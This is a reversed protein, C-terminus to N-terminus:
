PHHDPDVKKWAAESYAHLIKSRAEFYGPDFYGLNGQSSYHPYEGDQLDVMVRLADAFHDSIGFGNLQSVVGGWSGKFEPLTPQFTDGNAAHFILITYLGKRYPDPTNEIHSIWADLTYLRFDFEAMLKREMELRSETERARQNWWTWLGGFGTVFISTCLFLGFASNLFKSIKSDADSRKEKDLEERIRFRLQEEASIKQIAEESLGVVAEAYEM